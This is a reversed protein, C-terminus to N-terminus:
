LVTVAHETRNGTMQMMGAERYWGDRLRRMFEGNLEKKDM